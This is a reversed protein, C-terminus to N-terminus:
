LSGAVSIAYDLDRWCGAHHSSQLAFLVNEGRDANAGADDSGFRLSELTWLSARMEKLIIGTDRMRPLFIVRFM